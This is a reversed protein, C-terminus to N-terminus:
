HRDARDLYMHSNAFFLKQNFWSKTDTILGIRSCEHSCGLGLVAVSDFRCSKNLKRALKSDTCISTTLNSNCLYWAKPTKSSANVNGMKFKQLRFLSPPLVFGSVHLRTRNVLLMVVFTDSQQDSFHQWSTELWVLHNRKSLRRGKWNPLIQRWDVIERKSKGGILLSM